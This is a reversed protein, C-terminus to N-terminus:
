VMSLKTERQLNSSYVLVTSLYIFVAQASADSNAEKALSGTFQNRLPNTINSLASQHERIISLLNESQRMFFDFGPNTPSQAVGQYENFLWVGLSIM